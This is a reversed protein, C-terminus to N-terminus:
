TRMGRSTVDDPTLDSAPWGIRDRRRDRMIIVMIQTKLKSNKPNSEAGRGWWWWWWRVKELCCIRM